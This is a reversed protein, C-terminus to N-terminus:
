EFLTIIPRDPSTASITGYFSSNVVKKSYRTMMAMNMAMASDSVRPTLQMPVYPAFVYGTDLLSKGIFISSLSIVVKDDKHKISLLYKDASVNGFVYLNFEIVPLSYEGFEPTQYNGLYDEYKLLENEFFTQKYWIDGDKLYTLHDWIDFELM